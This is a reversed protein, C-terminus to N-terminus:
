FTVGGGGSILLTDMGKSSSKRGCRRFDAEKASNDKDCGVDIETCSRIFDCAVGVRVLVDCTGFGLVPCAFLLASVLCPIGVFRQAAGAM